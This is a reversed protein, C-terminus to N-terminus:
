TRSALEAAKNKRTDLGYNKLISRALATKHVEDAGDYIRAGREHRYYWALLVGDTIGMAGFTQIARDVVRLVMNAVFFKIASIENRVAAAGQEDINHATRLVMLRSADIEARSEAIFGQIFQKEGLMMGPEIERTAARHCMLDFSREAIGIWRMCHHIRGPGLREQALMFGMGEGGILNNYPVRCNTYRVEAHSGWHDSPDGMISINRVLEFGPNDTPVVIMSARKHPAADPNTVAMVVAFAAGDASSTFWKHGNIVWEDGDRIALTGMQTPNSGAFEPETMSFCSRIHGEKLPELYQRKIDDSAYKHMLEMNGIDPAQCNFTYHGFPSTALVESVQGFECLTLGLGGEDISHQLGWLGAQRVLERKQDLIAAVKSFNGTLYEGTELPVLHTHIFERIRPVLERTHDTAFIAEM